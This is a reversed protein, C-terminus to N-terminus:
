FLSSKVQEYKITYLEKKTFINGKDFIILHSVTRWPWNKTPAAKQLSCLRILDKPEDQTHEIEARSLYGTGCYQRRVAM